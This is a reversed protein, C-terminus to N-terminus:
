HSLYLGNQRGNVANIGMIAPAAPLGMEECAADFHRSRWDGADITISIRLM